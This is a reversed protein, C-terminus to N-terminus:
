PSEEKAVYELVDGSELRQGRRVNEGRSRMFDEVNKLAGAKTEDM